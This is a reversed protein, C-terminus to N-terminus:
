DIQLGAIISKTQNIKYHHVLLEKRIVKIKRGVYSVM